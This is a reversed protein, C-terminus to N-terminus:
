IHKTCFQLFSCNKMSLFYFKLIYLKIIDEKKNSYGMIEWNECKYQPILTEDCWESLKERM